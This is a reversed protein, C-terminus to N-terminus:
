NTKTGIDGVDEGKILAMVSLFEDDDGKVDDPM